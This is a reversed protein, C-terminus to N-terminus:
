AACRRTGRTLQRCASIVKRSVGPWSANVAMRAAARLHGVDHHEHDGGVVAEHRLRDLRDRVGLVGAHRHDDAILLTSRGCAFGSLTLCSSSCCLTTSSSNPPLTSAVSTEALFPVFM